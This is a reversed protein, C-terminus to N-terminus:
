LPFIDGSKPERRFGKKRLEMDSLRIYTRPVDKMADDLIGENRLYDRMADEPVVQAGKMPGGKMASAVEIQMVKKRKPDYYLGQKALVENVKKIRPDEPDEINKGKPMSQMFKALNLKM